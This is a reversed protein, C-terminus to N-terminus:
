LIVRSIFHQDMLNYPWLSPFFVVSRNLLSKVSTPLIITQCKEKRQIINSCTERKFCERYFFTLCGIRPTPAKWCFLLEVIGQKNFQFMALASHRQMTENPTKWLKHAPTFTVSKDLVQMIWAINGFRSKTLSFPLGDISLSALLPQKLIRQCKWFETKTEFQCLGNQNTTM